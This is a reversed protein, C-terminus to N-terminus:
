NAKAKVEVAPADTQGNILAEAERLLVHATWWDHWPGSVYYGGKDLDSGLQLPGSFNTEIVDRYQALELRAQASQHLQYLAMAAIMHSNAKLGPRLPADVLEIASDQPVLQLAQAYHGQRYEFLALAFNAWSYWSSSAATTHRLVDAYHKMQSAQDADIPLLLCAKLAREATGADDTDGTANVLAVRLKEYTANDGLEILLPGYSLSNFALNWATFLSGEDNPGLMAIRWLEAAQQRRHKILDNMGLNMYFWGTTAAEMEIAPTPFNSITEEAQTYHSSRRMNEVALARANADFPTLKLSSAQDGILTMAQRLLIRAEVWEFWTDEPLEKQFMPEIADRAYAFELGADDEQHLQHHIMARLALATPIRTTQQSPALCGVCLDEAKIYNGRRYDLLALAIHNWAKPDM